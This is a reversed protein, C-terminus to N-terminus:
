IGQWLIICGHCSSTPACLCRVSGGEFLVVLETSVTDGHAVQASHRMSELTQDAARHAVACYPSYPTSSSGPYAALWEECQLVVHGLMVCLGMARPAKPQLWSGGSHNTLNSINRLNTAPQVIGNEEDGPKSDTTTKEAEDAMTKETGGTKPCGYSDGRSTASRDERLRLEDQQQARSEAYNRMKALEAQWRGELANFGDDVLVQAQSESIAPLMLQQRLEELQDALSAGARRLLEAETQWCAAMADCTDKALVKEDALVEEIDNHDDTNDARRFRDMGSPEVRLAAM